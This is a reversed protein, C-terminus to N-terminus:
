HRNVAIGLELKSRGQVTSRFAPFRAKCPDYHSQFGLPSKAPLTTFKILPTSCGRGRYGRFHNLALVAIKVCRNIITWIVRTLLLRCSPPLNQAGDPWGHTHKGEGFERLVHSELWVGSQVLSLQVTWWGKQWRMRCVMRHRWWARGARRENAKWASSLGFGHWYVERDWRFTRPKSSLTGSSTGQDAWLAAIECFSMFSLNVSPLVIFQPKLSFHTEVCVNTPFIVHKRHSSWCM